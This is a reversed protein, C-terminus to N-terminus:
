RAHCHLLLALLGWAEAADPVLACVLRALWIAEDALGTRSHDAGAIDDWASGYAVYIADLVGDLRAPFESAEPIVFGLGADRIRAKARSLRQGMASPAVLFAQAIRAADLGLVTQLMLPAHIGPEIAPHACVFMLRLREDPFGAQADRDSTEEALVHLTVAAANRVQGHRAAHLLGRRAVTLLWAEPRDPVGHQPWRELAIRFADALADEAGAVDRTRAALLALLHGYAARATAEATARALGM